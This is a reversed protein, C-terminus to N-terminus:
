EGAVILALRKGPAVQEGVRAKLETVVGARSATLAHEMKMSELVLLTAGRQVTQGEAVHVAVIRGNMPAQVAGDGSRALAHAPRRVIDEVMLSRGAVELHLRAEDEWVYPIRIGLGDVMLHLAEETLGLHEVDLVSGGSEIRYRAPALPLVNVHGINLAFMSCAQGGSHWNGLWPQPLRAMARALFLVAAAALAEAAPPVSARDTFHAAVFDITARGESFEPHELCGLLFAKNSTLGLAVTDRLAAILKRRAEDRTEGHVILKALLPDYYPTIECPDALAHDIRALPSPRWRLLSGSQPLFGREADEAYLRAEIAHGRMVVQDQLCPLSEGRAIRLQWEVLDLGTISETVPHEVQLRTNMEMFYFRGEGDLLFEVTGAGVYGVARAATCAAAGMAARLEAGVAPSPAEEIAKQHRRQVSCDREFLHIAEGRADAFIQVEVHRAGVLVRELILSGDGFAALAESHASALAAPLEALDGVRRMGRGGGGAAAKIMLPVGLQRAEALLRRDSADEGHYGPICPVGAALMIRKAGAKDGMSRMAQAPPGIWLVGAAACREAFEANESLFGYGPHLADAGSKRCAELMKEMDLYSEAPRVGGIAVAEDCASVHPAHRDADSHVAVTPYGLRRATRAIRVVIEGRNAILIKTFM